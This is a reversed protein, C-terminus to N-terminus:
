EHDPFATRLYRACIEFASQHFELRQRFWNAKEKEYEILSRRQQPFIKIVYKKHDSTALATLRRGPLLRLSSQCSFVRTEKDSVRLEVECPAFSGNDIVDQVKM